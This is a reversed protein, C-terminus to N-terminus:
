ATCRTDTTSNTSTRARDIWDTLSRTLSTDHTITLSIDHTLTLLRVSSVAGTGFTISVAERSRHYDLVDSEGIALIVAMSSEPDIVVDISDGTDLKRSFQLFTTGGSESGSVGFM